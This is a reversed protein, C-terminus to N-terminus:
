ATVSDDPTAPDDAPEPGGPPPQKRMSEGRLELRHAGHLLRDLIADALTAEGILEHWHEVPMQSAILTSRRGHRDEIVEMLDQRQAASIKQIGWDDIIILETKLLRAMLRPYSGDGHAIRLQEFLKPLRLYRVSLGQRCAQNGIACALWTKGCGTPGTLCLNQAQRIWDCQALAAMRPKELGRPHRYDIDEVCAPVRLRAQQLLRALRRNERHLREREVLMALRQEFSLEHTQPQAQQQELAELMGTLKLTRLQEITQQHLM